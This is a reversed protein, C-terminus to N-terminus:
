NTPAGSLPLFESARGCNEGLVPESLFGKGELPSDESSDSGGELRGGWERGNGYKYDADM